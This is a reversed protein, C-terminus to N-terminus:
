NSNKFKQITRLIIIFLLGIVVPAFLNFSVAITEGSSKTTTEFLYLEGFGLKISKNFGVVSLLVPTLIQVGFLILSAIAWEKGFNLRSIEKNKSRAAIQVAKKDSSYIEIGSKTDKVQLNKIKIYKWLKSSIWLDGVAGTFNGLFGILAIGQYQPRVVALLVFFVSLTVFPLYAVLLMQHIKIPKDSTAYAIPMVGAIGVGFRPKAGAIIFGVGHMLEHLIITGVYAGIAVWGNINLDNAGTVGSFIAGGIFFLFISQLTLVYSVQKDITITEIKNM